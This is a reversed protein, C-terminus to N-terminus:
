NLRLDEDSEPRRHGRVGLQLTRDLKSQLQEWAEQKHDALLEAAAPSIAVESKALDVGVRVMVVITHEVIRLTTYVINTLM